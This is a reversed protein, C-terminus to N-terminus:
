AEGFSPPWGAYIDVSAPDPAAFVQGRLQEAHAFHAMDAATASAFVQQALAPTMTVFDGSMTKWALGEPMSSGLMVLGLQQTRSFTDSHYWHDGVRYGGTQTRRDREAKIAEWIAGVDPSPEAPPAFAEGDWTWGPGAVDSQIWGQSAAYDADAEVANTVVGGEIVMYRAM